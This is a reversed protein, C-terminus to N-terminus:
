KILQFFHRQEEISLPSLIEGKRKIGVNTILNLNDLIKGSLSGAINALWPPFQKKKEEVPIVFVECEELAVAYLVKEMNLFFSSHGLFEGPNVKKIPDIRSGKAHFLLFSGSQVRYMTQDNDGQKYLVEDKKIKKLELKSDNM